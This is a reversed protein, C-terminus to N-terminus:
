DLIVWTTELELESGRGGVVSLNNVDFFGRYQQVTHVGALTGDRLRRVALRIEAGRRLRVVSPEVLYAGVLSPEGRSPTAVRWLVRGGRTDVLATERDTRLVARNAGSSTWSLSRGRKVVSWRVVGGAGLAHIKEGVEVVLSASRVVGFGLDSRGLTRVTAGTRGDIVEAGRDTDVVLLGGGIRFVGARRASRRRRWLVDGGPVSVAIWEDRGAAEDRRAFLARGKVVVGWSLRDRTNRPLRARVEGTRSPRIVIWGDELRVTGTGSRDVATFRQAREFGGSWIPRPARNAAVGSGSWLQKVQGSRLNVRLRFRELGRSAAPTAIGVIVVLVVAKCTRTTIM